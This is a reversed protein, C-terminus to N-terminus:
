HNPDYYIPFKMLHSGMFVNDKTLFIGQLWIADEEYVGKITAQDVLLAVSLAPSETGSERNRTISHSLRRGQGTSDPLMWLHKSSM